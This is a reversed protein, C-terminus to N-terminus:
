AGGKRAARRAELAAAKKADGQKKAELMAVAITYVAYAGAGVAVLGGVLGLVPPVTPPNLIAPVGLMLPALFMFAYLPNFDGGREYAYIHVLTLLGVLLLGVEAAARGASATTSGADLSAQIGGDFFPLVVAAIALLLAM